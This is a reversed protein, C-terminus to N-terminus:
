EIRLSSQSDVIIVEGRSPCFAQEDFESIDRESEPGFLTGDPDIIKGSEDIGVVIVTAGDGFVRLKVTPPHKDREDLADLCYKLYRETQDM